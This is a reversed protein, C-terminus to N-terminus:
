AIIPSRCFSALWSCRRMVSKTRRASTAAPVGLSPRPIAGGQGQMQAQRALGHHALELEHAVLAIHRGDALAVADAKDACVFADAVPPRDGMAHDVTDDLIDVSLVVPM